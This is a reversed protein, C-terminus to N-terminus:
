DEEVLLSAIFFLITLIAVIYFTEISILNGIILMFVAVITTVFGAVAFSTSVKAKGTRKEQALYSGIAIVVFIFFLVSPYLSTVQDGLQSAQVGIDSSNPLIYTM